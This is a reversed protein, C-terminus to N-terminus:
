MLIDSLDTRGANEAAASRQAAVGAEYSNDMIFVDWDEQESAPIHAVTKLVHRLEAEIEGRHQKEMQWLSAYLDRALYFGGCFAATTVILVFVTLM